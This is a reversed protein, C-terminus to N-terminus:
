HVEEGKQYKAALAADYPARRGICHERQCLQCSEFKVETPFFLGSVSKIPVMLCNDTLRVGILKEVDGFLSFLPRQQTLPWDDVSGSGPAMRSVQGLAYRRTLYDTLYSIANRVAMEKIADLCYVKILDDAPVTVADLERGCTAVYPFVREVKDLNVRLVRSTFTVGDIVVSDEEKCDIFAVRYVAKPKAVPRVMDILEQITDAFRKNERTARMRKLIADIDPNFPISDLIEM